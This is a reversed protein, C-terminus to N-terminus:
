RNPANSKHYPPQLSALEQPRLNGRARSRAAQLIGQAWEPTALDHVHVYSAWVNEIHVGDRGASLGTGRRVACATPIPKTEPVIRSYHFEHGQITTGVAYFPNPNDVILEAYGHGQPADCVEIDFPLVDAMTFRTGKWWIARSLLMLGGCEAYIPLGRRASERISALLGANASLKAAHTEPFGGGIYLADLDDPLVQATLSSISELHAGSRALAELNEPYYFSFASDNLYAIKLGRGDGSPRVPPAHLELPAARRAIELIWPIELRGEVFSLVEARLADLKGHESPTVLGLHRSALVGEHKHLAGVVPLHCTSEISERLIREHREGAVRNLIVGSLRVHPDLEKCGLVLAAVTHTVKTADIVLLVPADLLKALEATSHTGRADFGDFLGRNGEILNLGASLSYRAFSSRANEPGMLYTDLNHAPRSAAWSLWAPDIYDPGKKFGAVELNAERALLCLGISVITKGCDGSLGAVVVRPLSKGRIAKAELVKAENKPGATM